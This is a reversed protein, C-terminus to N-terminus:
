MNEVAKMMIPVIEKAEEKTMRGLKAFRWEENANKNERTMQLKRPGDNYSFIGVTIRTSEFDKVEKFCEVDLSSDYPM